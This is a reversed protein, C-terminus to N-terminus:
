KLIDKFRWYQMIYAPTEWRDWTKLTLTDRQYIIAPIGALALQLYSMHVCRTDIDSCEILLNRAINFHYENYLVDAAAIVMGGAGCAPESLTIIKDQEAYEKVLIGNISVKACMKSVSYPTFFQGTHKNSTESRMYIEGLYDNFGIAPHIQHMLLLSMDAFIDLLLQQMDRDYKKIIQLYRQERKAAKQMDFRNSIAIAGCEFVDSLFEHANVRYLGRELKKLIDQVKPIKVPLPSTIFYSDPVIAPSASRYVPSQEKKDPEPEPIEPEPNIYQPLEIDFLSLQAAPAKENKMAEKGTSIVFAGSLYQLLYFM